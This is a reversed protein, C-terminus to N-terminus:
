SLGDLVKREKWKSIEVPYENMQFSLISDFVTSSVWRKKDHSLSSLVNVLLCPRFKVIPREGSGRGFVLLFFLYSHAIRKLTCYRTRILLLM